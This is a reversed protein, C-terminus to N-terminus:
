ISLAGREQVSLFAEFNVIESQSEFMEIDSQEEDLSRSVAGRMRM